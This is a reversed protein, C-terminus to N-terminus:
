GYYEINVGPREPIIDKVKRGRKTVRHKGQGDTEIYGMLQLKLIAMVLEHPILTPRETTAEEIIAEEGVWRDGAALLVKLAWQDQVTIEVSRRVTPGGRFFRLLRQMM